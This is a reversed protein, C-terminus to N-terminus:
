KANFKEKLGEIKVDMRRKEDVRQKAERFVRKTDEAFDSSLVWGAYGFDKELVEDLLQGKYKGFNITPKGEENLVVRGALDVNRSYSSYRSLFDIDNELDPYRDLQAKLVNLTTRTDAAAAHHNEMEVGCYFKCAAALDRKEKKHYITQVDVFRCDKINFEVNANAMEQALIPIDFHNSNFGAIDCGSFLAALEPAVDKFRPCDRVDDDTIHHVAIAQEPIPMDPNFRYTHEQEHGDPFVKIYSLEIIRDKTINLGTSEVDFIIIPRTLKLEM